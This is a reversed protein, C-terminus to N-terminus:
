KTFIRFIDTLHSFIGKLAQMIDGTIKQGAESNIAETTKKVATSATEESIDKIEQIYEQGQPSTAVELTKEKVFDIGSLNMYGHRTLFALAVILCFVALLKNLIRRM